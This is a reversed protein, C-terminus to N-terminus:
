RGPNDEDACESPLDRYEWTRTSERTVHTVKGAQFRITVTGHFRDLMLRALFRFLKEGTPM